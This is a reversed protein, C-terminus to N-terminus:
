AAARRDIAEIWGVCVAAVQILEARLKAEDHCEAVAEAVEEILIHAYTGQKRKFAGECLRRGRNATPVEYEEAMRIPDCGGARNLLVQDFSPVHDQRGFKKIQRAREFLVENLVTSIEVLDDPHM